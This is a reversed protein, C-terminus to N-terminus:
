CGYWYCCCCCCLPLLVHPLACPLRPSRQAQEQRQARRQEARAQWVLRLLLVGGVAWRLLLPGVAWQLLLLLARAM